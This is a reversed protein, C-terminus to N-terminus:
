TAICLSPFLTLRTRHLCRPANSVSQLFFPGSEISAREESNQNLKRFILKAQKKYEALQAESQPYSVSASLFTQRTYRSTMSPPRWPCDQLNAMAPLPPIGDQVRAITTSRIMASGLASSGPRGPSVPGTLLERRCKESV